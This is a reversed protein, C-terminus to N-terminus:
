IRMRGVVGVLRRQEHVHLGLRYQEGLALEGSVDLGVITGAVVSRSAREARNRGRRSLAIPWRTCHRCQPRGTLTGILAHHAVSRMRFAILMM